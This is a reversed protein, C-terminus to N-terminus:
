EDRGARVAVAGLSVLGLAAAAWPVTDDVGTYPLTPETTTSPLTTTTQPQTTSTTSEPTTTTTVPVTTTTSTPTTTTTTVPVDLCNSITLVNKNDIWHIGGECPLHESGHGEWVHRATFAEQPDTDPTEFHITPGSIKTAEYTVGDVTITPPEQGLATSMGVELLFLALLLLLAVRIARLVNKM